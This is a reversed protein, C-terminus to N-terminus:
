WVLNKRTFSPRQVRINRGSWCVMRWQYLSVSRPNKEKKKFVATIEGLVTPNDYIAPHQQIFFLTKSVLWDRPDRVLYIKKNFHQFTAYKVWNPEDTVGLIVKALITRTDDDKDPIYEKAEFLVKPPNLLSNKIKFFLGTTGSKYQGYIVIKNNKYKM